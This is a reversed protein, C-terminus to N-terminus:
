YLFVELIRPENGARRFTSESVFAPLLQLMEELGRNTFAHETSVPVTSLKDSCDYVSLTSSIIAFTVFLRLNWSM